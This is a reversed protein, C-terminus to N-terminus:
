VGWIGYDIYFPGVDISVAKLAMLFLKDISLKRQPFLGVMYVPFVKDM